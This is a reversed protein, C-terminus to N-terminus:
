LRLQAVARHRIFRAALAYHFSASAARVHDRTGSREFQKNPSM